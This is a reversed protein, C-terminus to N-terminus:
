FAPCHFAEGEAAPILAVQSGLADPFAAAPLGHQVARTIEEGTFYPRLASDPDPFRCCVDCRFCASSPVLQPLIKPATTVLSAKKAIPATM